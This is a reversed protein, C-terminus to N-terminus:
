GVLICPFIFSYEKQPLVLEPRKLCVTMKYMIKYKIAIEKIIPFSHM